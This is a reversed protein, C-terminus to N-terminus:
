PGHETEKKSAVLDHWATVAYSRLSTELPILTLIPLTPAVEGRSVTRSGTVSWYRARTVAHAANKQYSLRLAPLGYLEVFVALAIVFIVKRRLGRWHQDAYLGADFGQPNSM